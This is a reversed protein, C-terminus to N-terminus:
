LGFLEKIKNSSKIWGFFGLTINIGTCIIFVNWDSHDPFVAFLGFILIQCFIMLILWSQSDARDLLLYEKREEILLDKIEKKM